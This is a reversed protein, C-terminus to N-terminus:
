NKFKVNKDTGFAPKIMKSNKKYLSYIDFVGSIPIISEIINEKPLNFKKYYESYKLAMMTIIHGGSSHGILHIKNSIGFYKEINNNVFSLCHFLDDLQTPYKFEPGLNHSPVIVVNDNLCLEKAFNSFCELDKNGRQWAGGHVLIISTYKKMNDIPFYINCLHNKDYNSYNIDKEINFNM